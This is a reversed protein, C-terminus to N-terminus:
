LIPFLYTAVDDHMPALGQEIWGALAQLRRHPNSRNTNGPYHIEPSDTSLMRIATHVNSTDGNSPVGSTKTTGLAGPKFAVPGWFIQVKEM